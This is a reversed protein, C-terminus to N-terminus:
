LYPYRTTKGEKLKQFESIVENSMEFSLRLSNKMIEEVIEFDEDNKVYRAVVEDVEDAHKQDIDSHENFFTMAKKPIGLGEEMLSLLPKIYDYVREAWFSYGLRGLPNENLSIHYLYAILSQTSCLPRPMNNETIDFGLRQIDKLAMLEHGVEEAAHNLCFKMYGTSMKDSRTAVLAQNKANHKTYHYTETMHIAYLRKDAFGPTMLLELKGNETLYEMEKNLSEKLKKVYNM